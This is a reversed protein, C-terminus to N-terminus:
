TLQFVFCFFLLMKDKATWELMPTAHGREKYNEREREGERGGM